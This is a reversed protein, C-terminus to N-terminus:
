DIIRVCVKEYHYYIIVGYDTIEVADIVTTIDCDEGGGQASVSTMSGMFMTAAICGATLAKRLTTM